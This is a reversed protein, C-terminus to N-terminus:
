FAISVGWEDAFITRSIAFRGAFPKDAGQRRGIALLAVVRVQEPIRFASKVQEEDFGEM